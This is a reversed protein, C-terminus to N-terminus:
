LPMVSHELKNKRTSSFDSDGSYQVMFYVVRSLFFWAVSAYILIKHYRPIPTSSEATSGRAFAVQSQRSKVGWHIAALKASEEIYWSANGRHNRNKTWPLTDMSSNRMSQNGQAVCLIACFYPVFTHCLIATWFAMKHWVRRHTAWPSCLM